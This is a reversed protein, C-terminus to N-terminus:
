KFIKWSNKRGFREDDYGVIDAIENIEQAFCFYYKIVVCGNIM